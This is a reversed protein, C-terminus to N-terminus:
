YFWKLKDTKKFDIPIIISIFSSVIHDGWCICFFDYPLFKIDILSMKLIVETFWSYFLIEKIQYHSGVLFGIKISTKAWLIALFPFLVYINFLHIKYINFLSPFSDKNSSYMITYMSFELSEVFILILIVLKLYIHPIFPYLFLLFFWDFIYVPLLCIYTSIMKLCYYWFCVVHLFSSLSLLVFGQFSCLM